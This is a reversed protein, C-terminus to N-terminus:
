SGLEYRTPQQVGSGDAEAIGPRFGYSPTVGTTPKNTAGQTDLETVGTSSHGTQATPTSRKRRKLLFIALGAIVLIAGLAAGVGIGAKAGTSLGSSAAAATSTSLQYQLAFIRNVIV